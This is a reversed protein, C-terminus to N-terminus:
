LLDNFGVQVAAKGDSTLYRLVGVTCYTTATAIVTDDDQASVEKGILGQTVSAHAAFYEIQGTQVRVDIAGAAGASNDAKETAVGLVPHLNNGAASTAPTAYGSADAMCIAGAYITTQTAVPVDLEQARDTNKVRSANATLATM